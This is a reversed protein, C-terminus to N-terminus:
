GTYMHVSKQRTTPVAKYWQKQQVKCVKTLKWKGNDSNINAGGKEREQYASYWYTAGAREGERALELQRNEKSSSQLFVRPSEERQSYGGEVALLMVDPVRSQEVRWDESARGKDERESIKM